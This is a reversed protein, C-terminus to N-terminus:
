SGISVLPSIPLTIPFQQTCSAFYVRTLHVRGLVNFRIRGPENNLDPHQALHNRLWSAHNIAATHRRSWAGTRSAEVGGEASRRRLGQSGACGECVAVGCRLHRARGRRRHPGSRVQWRHRGAWVVLRRLSGEPGLCALYRDLVELGRGVRDRRGVELLRKGFQAPSHVRNEDLACQRVRELLQVAADLIQHPLILTGLQIFHELSLTM